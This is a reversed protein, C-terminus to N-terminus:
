QSTVKAAKRLQESFERMRRQELQERIAQAVTEFSPLRPTRLDDLRIVHWGFTTQVPAPTTQGKELKVLADGFPKVYTTPPSWGLSGGAVASGTDKSRKALEEFPEGQKLRQLLDNAEAESEVLIHRALYEPHGAAATEAQYAKRVDEDTVPNRRMEDALLAQILTNQRQAELRFLVDAQKTLARREVEQLLVERGILQDRVRARVEPTDAQGQRRLQDVWIDELARPIVKGNVVVGEHSQTWGPSSHLLLTLGLVCLVGAVSLEGPRIPFRQHM